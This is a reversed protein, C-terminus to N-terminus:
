IHERMIAMVVDNTWPPMPAWGFDVNESPDAAIWAGGIKTEVFVHEFNKPATYGIAVFRAPHGISELMAALLTSKDDCDGAQISLTVNPNQILEVGNTDQLYRISDRAFEFCRRAEETYNQGELDQTLTTALARISQQIRTERVLRAMIRLTARTGAAGDPIDILQTEPAASPSPASNLFM